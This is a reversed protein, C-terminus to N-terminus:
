AYYNIWIHSDVGSVTSSPLPTSVWRSRNLELEEEVSKRSIEHTNLDGQTERKTNLIPNNKEREFNSFDGARSYMIETLREIQVRCLLPFCPHQYTRCDCVPLNGHVHCCLCLPFM